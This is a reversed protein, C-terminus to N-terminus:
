GSRSSLPKIRYFFVASSSKRTELSTGLALLDVYVKVTKLFLVEAISNTKHPINNISHSCTRNCFDKLVHNIFWVTTLKFLKHSKKKITQFIDENGLPKM